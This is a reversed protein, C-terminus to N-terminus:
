GEQYQLRLREARREQRAIRRARVKSARGHIISYISPILFLTMIAGVLLGGVVSRAIPQVLTSNEGQFLAVPTLGLVTTLNTMLIPRLRSQGAELCAENIEYGRGRLLNIYDVLVIGNNVVIGALMVVGIAGFLSLTEGTLLHIWIVGVAVLPISFFIIFPSRLSEFQAAMVGFVLAVAIILIIIFNGFFRQLEQFEGSFSISLDEDVPIAEQILTRIQPEVENLNQDPALDATVHITRRQNERLIEPPTVDYHLSAFSALPIREEANGLVFIKELDVVQDRNPEAAVVVIDLEDGGSRFRSATTGGVNASLEEGITLINLGLSYARDRDIVVDIQPRGPEADVLPEVVEPRQELLERIQEATGLARAYDNSNVIIDIPPASFGDRRRRREGGGSGFFFSAGPFDGFHRRLKQRVTQHDDIREAIPPLQIDLGGSGTNNASLVIDDYGQVEARVIEEMQRLVEFTIGLRTGPPMEVAIRVTDEQQDPFLNFGVSPLLAFSGAFVVVVIIITLLRRRLTFALMTRYLKEIGILLREILLNLRHLLAGRSAESSHSHRPLLGALAPILFIAVVWSATLSIVVTFALGSLFEGLIELQSRFAVIPIFVCITTLTSASVPRIMERAGLYAAMVPKAGKERYRHINELVVISSDVLMGVGLALGTLTMINLTLGSFFMLMLTVVVSIPISLAIIGTTVVSRLFFLLVIIALTGGALAAQSVQIITDRIIRSTDESVSVEIGAPLAANINELSAIIADSVAVSNAGSQKRVEIQLGPEGNIYLLQEQDRYGQYVEAVDRLRVSVPLGGQGVPRYAIVANAIDEVSTFEGVSSIPYDINGEVISGASLQINQARLVQAIQSLTLGYAELRNQPAEVRIIEERGGSIDAQAAGAIQELRPKVIDEALRRLEDASRNGGMQLSVVPISAPDFKFVGPSGVEDPFPVFDLRDRVDDAAVDINTGWIFDLQIQSTGAGSISTMKDLRSVNSLVDELPRTVINEVEEPGAGPYSTFVVLVPPDVEPLLDIPLGLSTYVGVALVLAFFTGIAVPRRVFSKLM